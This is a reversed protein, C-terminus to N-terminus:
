DFVQQEIYPLEINMSQSELIRFGSTGSDTNLSGLARFTSGVTFGVSGTSLYGYARFTSGSPALCRRKKSDDTSEAAFCSASAFSCRETRIQDRKYNLIEIGFSSGANVRFSGSPPLIPNIGPNRLVEIRFSVTQQYNDDGIDTVTVSVNFIGLQTVNGRIANGSLSLSAPHGSISYTFNGSGQYALISLEFYENIYLTFNPIPAVVLRLPPDSSTFDNEEGDDIVTITFSTQDPIPGSLTLIVNFTGIQTLTGSIFGTTSNITLSPPLGVASISYGSMTITLTWLSLGSGIRRIINGIRRIRPSVVRTPPAYASVEPYPEFQERSNGLSLLRFSCETTGDEGWAFSISDVLGYIGVVYGGGFGEWRWLQWNLPVAVEYENQKLVVFNSWWAAIAQLQEVGTVYNITVEKKRPLYPVSVSRYFEAELPEDVETSFPPQKEPEPPADVYSWDTDNATQREAVTVYEQDDDNREDGYGEYVVERTFKEGLSNVERIYDGTNDIYEVVSLTREKEIRSKTKYEKPDEENDHREVIEARAFYTKHEVRKLINKERDYFYDTRELNTSVAISREVLLKTDNPSYEEYQDFSVESQFSSKLYGSENWLNYKEIVTKGNGSGIGVLPKVIQVANGGGPADEPEPAASSEISRIREEYFDPTGSLSDFNVNFVESIYSGRGNLPRVNLSFLLSGGWSSERVCGNRRAKSRIVETTIKRSGIVDNDDIQRVVKEQDFGERPLKIKKKNGSVCIVEPDELIPQIRKFDLIQNSRYYFSTGPSSPFRRFVVNENPDVEAWYLYAAAMELAVAIFSQNSDKDLYYDILSSVPPPYIKGWPIGALTLLRTITEGVTKYRLTQTVSGCGTQIQDEYENIDSEAPSRYSLLGLIDIGTVTLRYNVPDYFAKDVRLRRGTGQYYIDIPQGRKLSSNLRDDIDASGIVRANFNLTCRWHLASGFAISDRTISGSMFEATYNTGGIYISVPQVIDNIM